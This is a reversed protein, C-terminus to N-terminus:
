IKKKTRPENMAQNANNTTALDIGGLSGFQKHLPQPGDSVICHNKEILYYYARHIHPSSLAINENGYLKNGVTV